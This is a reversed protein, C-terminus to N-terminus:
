KLEMKEEGRLVKLFADGFSLVKQASEFADRAEVESYDEEFYFAPARKMSLDSSIELIKNLFSEEVKLGRSKVEQAFILAVDHVKPYDVGMESLLGKLVFEVVEQAKRVALNWEASEIEDQMEQYLRKAAKFLKESRERNNM